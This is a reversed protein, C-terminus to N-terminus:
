KYVVPTSEDETYGRLVVTDNGISPWDDISYTRTFLKADEVYVVEMDEPCEKLRQILEKVKM